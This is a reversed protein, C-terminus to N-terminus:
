GVPIVLISVPRNEHQVILEIEHFSVAPSLQQYRPRTQEEYAASSEIEM